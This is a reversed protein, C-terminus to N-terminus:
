RGKDLVAPLFGVPLPSEVFYREGFLTFRLKSAHLLHRKLGISARKSEKSGYLLDGLLPHGISSFHVRIQHTRGTKPRAEVLALMEASRLVTYVTLAPKEVGSALRGGHAMKKLTGRKAVIPAEIVGNKKRFKGYVVAAYTKEIEHDHFMRKLEEYAVSTKAVLLLGSTNRDLRHLIGNREAWEGMGAQFLQPYTDRLATFLSEEEGAVPFVLLGAPKDVVLVRDDEFVVPPLGALASSSENRAEAYSFVMKEDCRARYGSRIVIKGNVTLAGRRVAETVMSRSWEAIIPTKGTVLLDYLVRDIRVGDFERPVVFSVTRLATDNLLPYIRM